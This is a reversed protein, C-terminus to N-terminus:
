AAAGVSSPSRHQRPCRRGRRDAALYHPLAAAFYAAHEGTGSAIELVTGRVPLVRRLVALIPGRNRMAAPSTLGGEAGPVTMGSRRERAVHDDGSM